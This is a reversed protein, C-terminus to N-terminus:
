AFLLAPLAAAPDYGQARALSEFAHPAHVATGVRYTRMRRSFCRKYFLLPDDEQQTTGGGLYLSHMGRRQGEVAAAHQMLYATGQEHGQPSSAGLHYELVGGGSQFLYVGATLWEGAGGEGGEGGERDEGSQQPQACICLLAGPLAALAEFYDDGFRYREHAGMAAMASRYFPGFRRWDQADSSWCVPVGAARRIKRRAMTNYQALAEPLSLDVSVTQRNELVQGLFFEQQQTEPHFRCFEAVIGRERAERQWAQWAREVFGADGGGALPGGYGYPSIAAMAPGGAIARVHTSLLWLADGERYGMHLCRLGAARHTDAAAFDPALSRVQLPQPLAAFWELAEGTSLERM